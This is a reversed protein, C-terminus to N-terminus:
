EHIWKGMIYTRSMNRIVDWDPHNCFGENTWFEDDSGDYRESIALIDTVLNSLEYRIPIENDRIVEFWHGIDKMLDEPVSINGGLRKLVSEPVDAFDFITANLSRLWFWISQNVDVM